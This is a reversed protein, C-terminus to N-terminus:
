AQVRLTGQMSPNDKGGCCVDCYFAYEGAPAGPIEVVAESRPGVKVDVGLAPIALQHWGGGDSHLSSDPNILRVRMPTNARATLNPESFGGMTIQVTRDAPASVGRSPWFFLALAGVTAAVLVLFVTARVRLGAPKPQRPGTTSRPSSQHDHAGRANTSRTM